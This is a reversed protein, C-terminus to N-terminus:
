PHPRRFPPERMRDFLSEREQWEPPAPQRRHRQMSHVDHPLLRGGRSPMPYFLVFLVIALALVALCILIIKTPRLM